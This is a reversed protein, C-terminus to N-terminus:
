IYDKEIDLLMRDKDKIINKADNYLILKCELIGNTKIVTEKVYKKSLKILSDFKIRDNNKSTNILNSILEMMDYIDYLNICNSDKPYEITDSIKDITIIQDEETKPFTPHTRNKVRSILISRKIYFCIYKYTDPKFYSIYLDRIGQNSNTTDIYVVIDDIESFLKLDNMIKQHTLHKSKRISNNERFSKFIEDRSLYKFCKNINSELYLGLYTKGSGPPGIPLFLVKM